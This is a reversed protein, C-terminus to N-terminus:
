VSASITVAGGLTLGPIRGLPLEWSAPAPPSAARPAGLVRVPAPTPSGAASCGPPVVTLRQNTALRKGKPDDPDFPETKQLAAEQQDLLALQLDRDFASAIGLDSAFLRLEPDLQLEPNPVDPLKSPSQIPTRFSIGPRSQRRQVVQPGLCLAISEDSSSNMSDSIAPPRVLNVGLPRHPARLDLQALPSEPMWACGGLWCGWWGLKDEHAADQGWLEWGDEPEPPPRCLLMAIGPVKQFRRRSRCFGMLIGMALFRTLLLCTM